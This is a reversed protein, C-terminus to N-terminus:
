PGPVPLRALNTWSAGPAGVGVRAQLCYEGGVPALLPDLDLRLEAHGQADLVGSSVVVVPGELLYLGDIGPQAAGPGASLARLVEFTRGAHEPAALALRPADGPLSRGFASLRPTADVALVRLDDVLAESLGDDPEDRMTFALRMRATLPGAAALDLREVTWAPEHELRALEVWSAGDDRSVEVRLADNAPVATVWRALELEAHGLGALDLRPSVLRTWGDVDHDSPGAGAAAGTVACRGQPAGSADGAPQVLLGSAPDVVPEPTALEFGGTGSGSVTWGPEEEAFGEVLLAHRQGVVLVQSRELHHGDGALTLRLPFRVGEPAEPALRLALRLTREEGPALALERPAPVLDALAGPVGVTLQGVFPRLGANDVRLELEWLEGREPWPDGDGALPVLEASLLRPAAAARRALEVLAPLVEECLEDIRAGQPWFGDQPGGIELAFALSAHVGHFWDPSTGNAFGLTEWPTGFGWGLPVATDEAWSRLRADEPSTVSDHGWPFLCYGGFAHLSVVVDPPQLAALDRLARTEPESFPAPGRYQQDGTYGSSGPWQPGWEWDYNRNLDVGLSGDANPAKNKRWLGGGSPALQRNFEYGDPNACPVVLLNTSDVLRRVEPDTGYGAALAEVLRMLVEGGIPERAHHLADFWVVPESPDHVGPTDSVRVAWITRGEWTTGVPIRQSVIQPYQAWLQVLDLAMEDHTRYGAFSGSAALAQAGPPPAAGLDERVTRLELGLAALRAQEARDAIVRARDPAHFHDDLDTAFRRLLVLDRPGEVRVEVLDVPGGAGRPAAPLQALTLLAPLVLTHLM